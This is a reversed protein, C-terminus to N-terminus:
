KVITAGEKALLEKLEGLFASRQEDDLSADLIVGLEYLPM